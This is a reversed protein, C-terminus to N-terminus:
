VQHPRLLYPESKEAGGLLDRIALMSAVLKRRSPEPMRSLMAKVAEGSAKDLPDFAEHGLKSLSLIMERQDSANVEREVLGREALGKIIRSLYGPDLNLEETLKKATLGECYALEYLVRLETLSYDSRMWHEDLVGIQKTYFRNFARVQAIRGDMPCRSLSFYALIP